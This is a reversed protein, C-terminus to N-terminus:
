SSFCIDTKQNSTDNMEMILLDITQKPTVMAKYCEQIEQMLEAPITIGRDYGARTVAHLWQFFEKNISM